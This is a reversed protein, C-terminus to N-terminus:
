NRQAHYLGAIMWFVLMGFSLSWLYHDFLGILVLMAFMIFYVNNELLRLGRDELIGYGLLVIFAMFAAFGFIGLEAFALIYINHVPQYNWAEREPGIQDHVALTYNGMGTGGLWNRKIIEWSEEVYAARQGISIKELRQSDDFRSLFLGSFNVAMMAFSLAIVGACKLVQFRLHRRANWFVVFLMAAAFGLALWASRSFSLFSGSTVAAIALLIFLNYLRRRRDWKKKLENSNYIYLGTLAIIALSLFGGLMNPHPFSGYARLWRENGIEIVSVGLDKASQASMGLWRGAFVSQSFFQWFALASQALGAAGLAACVRSFKPRIESIAWFLGLAELFKIWGYFAIPRSEAFFMSIFVALELIGALWWAPSIRIDQKEEKKRSLWLFFVGLIIALFLLDVAYLSFSGYEWAGGNLVARHFRWRTQWPLFFVLGYFLYEIIKKSREM